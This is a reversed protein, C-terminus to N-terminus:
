SHTAGYEAGVRAANSVAIYAGVARGLNGCGLALLLLIPVAIAFEVAAAGGRPSVQPHSPLLRRM